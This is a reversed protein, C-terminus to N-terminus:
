QVKIKVVVKKVKVAIGNKICPMHLDSPFFIMFTGAALRTFFSPTGEFLSCDNVVDFPVSLHLDNLFSHGVLEEGSIMYQVDIYQKHAEMQEGAMDLTDYEQVIAFLDDGNIAYKGPPTTALDTTHLYHFADGLGKHLSVYQQANQLTDIVM